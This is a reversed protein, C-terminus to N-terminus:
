NRMSGGPSTRVTTADTPSSSSPCPLPRVTRAKIFGGSPDANVAHRPPLPNGWTHSRSEIRGPSARFTLCDYGGEYSRPKGMRAWLALSHMASERRFASAQAEPEYGLSATRTHALWGNLAGAGSPSSRERTTLRYLSTPARGRPNAIGRETRPFGSARTQGACGTGCRPISDMAVLVAVVDVTVVGSPPSPGNM